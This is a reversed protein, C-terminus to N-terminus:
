IYAIESRAARKKVKYEITVNVASFTFRNTESKKQAFSGFIIPSIERLM